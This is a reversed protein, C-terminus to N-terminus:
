GGHGEEAREGNEKSGEQLIEEEKLRRGHGGKWPWTTRQTGFWRWDDRDGYSCKPYCHSKMYRQRLIVHPPTEPHHEMIQVGSDHDEEGEEEDETLTPTREPLHGPMQFIQKIPMPVSKRAYAFKGKRAWPWSPGAGSHSGGHMVAAPQTPAPPQSNFDTDQAVEPISVQANGSQGSSSGSSGRRGLRKFFGGSSKKESM